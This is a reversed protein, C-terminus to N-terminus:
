TTNKSYPKVRKKYKWETNRNKPEAVISTVPPHNIGKGNRAKILKFQMHMTRVTKVWLLRVSVNNYM